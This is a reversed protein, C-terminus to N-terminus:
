SSSSYDDDIDDWLTSVPYTRGAVVDQWAEEFAEEADYPELDLTEGQAQADAEILARLYDDITDYGQRQALHTITERQELTIPISIADIEREAM